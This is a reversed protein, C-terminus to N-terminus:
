SGPLIGMSCLRNVNADSADVSVIKVTDGKKAEKLSM